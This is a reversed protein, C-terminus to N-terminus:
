EQSHTCASRVHVVAAASPDEAADILVARQLLMPVVGISTDAGLVRLASYELAELDYAVLAAALDDLSYCGAHGRSGVQDRPIKGDPGVPFRNEDFDVEGIASERGVQQAVPRKETVHCRFYELAHVTLAGLLCSRIVLYCQGLWNVAPVFNNIILFNATSQM